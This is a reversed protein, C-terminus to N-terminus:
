QAAAPAVPEAPAPEIEVSTGVAPAAVPAVAAGDEGQPANAALAGPRPQKLDAFKENAARLLAQLLTDAGQQDLILRPTALVILETGNEEQNKARFAAGLYPIDAAGPVKTQTDNADQRRMGGMFITAGDASILDTELQRNSLIPYSNGDITKNGSVTDDKVKIVMRVENNNTVWPTVELQLGIKKFEVEVATQTSTGSILKGKPIPEESGVNIKATAGNRVVIKPNSLLSFATQSALLQLTAFNSKHVVGASFTPNTFDKAILNTAFDTTINGTSKLYWEVGYRMANNLRVEAIAVEVQVSPPRRDMRDLLKKIEAFEAPSAYILLSNSTKDALVNIETANRLVAKSLTLLNPALDTATQMSLPYQFIQRDNGNRVDAQKLFGEVLDRSVKNAAVIVVREMEPIQKVEFQKVNAPAGATLQTQYSDLVAVLGAATLFKPSYVIIYKGLFAPVDADKVLSDLARLDANSTNALIINGPLLTLKDTSKVVQKALGLFDKSELFKLKFLGVSDGIRAAGPPTAAPGQSGAEGKDEASGILYVKGNRRVRVGNADLLSEFLGIVEDRTAEADFVLNVNRDRFSDQFSYPAKIYESMFAVIVDKLSVSDFDLRVHKPKERSGKNSDNISKNVAKTVDIEGIIGSGPRAPLGMTGYDNEQRLQRNREALKQLESDTRVAHEAVQGAAPPVFPDLLGCAALQSILLAMLCPALLRSKFTIM